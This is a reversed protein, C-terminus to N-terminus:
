VPHSLRAVQRGSMGAIRAFAIPISGLLIGRSASIDRSKSPRLASLPSAQDFCLRLSEPM